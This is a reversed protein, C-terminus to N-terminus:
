VELEYQNIHPDFHFLTSNNL